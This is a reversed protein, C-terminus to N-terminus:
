ALVITVRQGDTVRRYQILVVLCLIMCVISRSLGPVLKTTCFIEVFHRNSWGWRPGWHLRHLYVANKSQDLLRWCLRRVASFKLGDLYRHLVIRRRKQRRQQVRRCPFTRNSWQWWHPGYSTSGASKCLEDAVSTRTWSAASASSYTTDNVNLLMPRGPLRNIVEANRTHSVSCRISATCYNLRSCRHTYVHLYGFYFTVTASLAGWVSM